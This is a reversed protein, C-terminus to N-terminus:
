FQFLQPMVQRLVEAIIDCCELEVVADCGEICEYLLKNFGDIYTVKRQRVYIIPHGWFRKGSDSITM